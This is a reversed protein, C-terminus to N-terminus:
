PVFTMPVPNSIATVSDGIAVAAHWLTTGFLKAALAPPLNPLVAQATAAGEGNLLGAFPAAIGGGSLSLLTYVDPYLPLDIGDLSLVPEIGRFSGLLVYLQGAHAAGFEIAYGQSSGGSMGVLPPTSRLTLDVPSVVSISGIKLAELVPGDFRSGVAFDALGDGTVDGLPALSHGYLSPVQQPVFTPIHVFLPEFTQGCFGRVIGWPAVPMAVQLLRSGVLLDDVGDGNMDGPVCLAFGTSEQPLEGGMTAIIDLSGGEYVTVIASFEPHGPLNGSQTLVFDNWGNGTVDGLKQFAIATGTGGPPLPVAAILAGDSGSHLTSPYDIVTGDGLTVKSKASVVFDEIADGNQDGVSGLWYGISFGTTVAGPTDPGFIKYIESGDVGSLVSVSGLNGQWSGVPEDWFAGVAVDPVGDGNVDGLGTVASGFHDNLKAGVRIWLVAGTRGSVAAVAGRSASLESGAVIDTFGDGDLDGVSVLSDIVFINFQPSTVLRAWIPFGTAGSVAILDASSQDTSYVFDGFGDGDIDGLGAVRRGIEANQTPGTQSWQAEQFANASGGWLFTAALGLLSAAVTSVGFRHRQM